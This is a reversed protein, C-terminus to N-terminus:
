EVRYRRHLEDLRRKLEQTTTYIYQQFEIPFAAEPLASVHPEIWPSGPRTTYFNWIVTSTVFRSFVDPIAAGEVLHAKNCIIDAILENQRRFLSIVDLNIESLKHDMWLRYLRESVKLHAYIPGYFEALQAKRYALESEAVTAQSGLLTRIQETANTMRRAQELVQDSAELAARNEATRRVYAVYYATVVQGLLLVAGTLLLTVNTPETLFFRQLLDGAQGM